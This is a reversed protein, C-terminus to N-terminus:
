RSAKAPPALGQLYETLKKSDGSSLGDVLKQYVENANPPLKHAIGRHCDICTKGATLAEQHTKSARPEQTAYDMYDFKHCNRCEHSDTKKMRSWENVALQVRRANFKEPTSISGLLHHYLENSAYIKRLLKPGWEKPVHCDPCSARVGSRNAYHGTTRYEAFVNTKMEHCSICFQETNTLEVAWHFGGWFVIGGVFGLVAAGRARDGAGAALVLEM